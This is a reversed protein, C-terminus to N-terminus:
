LPGRDRDAQDIGVCIGRVLLPQRRQDGLRQGAAVRQGDSFHIQQVRGAVEPRLMIAESSRLSGSIATRSSISRRNRTGAGGGAVALKMREGAMAVLQGLVDSPAPM